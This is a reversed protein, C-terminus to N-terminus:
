VEAELSKIAREIEEKEFKEDSSLEEKEFNKLRKKLDEKAKSYLEIREEHSFHVRLHFLFNHLVEIYIPSQTGIAWMVDSKEIKKPIDMEEEGKKGM